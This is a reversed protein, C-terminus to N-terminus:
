VNAEKEITSRYLRECGEEAFYRMIDTVFYGGEFEINVGQFWSYSM